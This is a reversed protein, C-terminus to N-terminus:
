EFLADLYTPNLSYYLKNGNVNNYSLRLEFWKLSVSLYIFRFSRMSFDKIVRCVSHGRNLIPLVYTIRYNITSLLKVTQYKRYSATLSDDNVYSTWNTHHVGFIDFVIRVFGFHTGKFYFQIRYSRTRKQKQPLPYKWPSKIDRRLSHLSVLRQFRYIKLFGGGYSWIRQIEEYRQIMSKLM